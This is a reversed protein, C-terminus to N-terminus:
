KAVDLRRKQTFLFRRNLDELPDYVDIPYAKGAEQPAVPSRPPVTGLREAPVAACAATLLLLALVLAARTGAM